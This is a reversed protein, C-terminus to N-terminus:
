GFAGKRPLCSRSVGAGGAPVDHIMELYERMDKGLVGEFGDIGIRRQFRRRNVKQAYSEGFNVSYGLIWAAAEIIIWLWM